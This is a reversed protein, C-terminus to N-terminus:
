VGPEPAMVANALRNVSREDLPRDEISGCRDVVCALVLHLQGVSDPNASGSHHHREPDVRVLVSPKWLAAHERRLV